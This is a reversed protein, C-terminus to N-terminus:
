LNSIRKVWKRVTSFKMYFGAMQKARCFLHSTEIHFAFSSWFLNFIWYTIHFFHGILVEVETLNLKSNSFNILFFFFVFMQWLIWSPVVILDESSIKLFNTLHSAALFSTEITHYCLLLWHHWRRSFLWVSHYNMKRLLQFSSFYCQM